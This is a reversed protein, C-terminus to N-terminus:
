RADHYVWLAMLSRSPCNRTSRGLGSGIRHRCAVHERCAGPRHEREKLWPRASTRGLRLRCRRQGSLDRRGLFPQHLADEDAHLLDPRGDRRRDDGVRLTAIPERPRAQRGPRVGERDARCARASNRLGTLRLPPEVHGYSSFVSGRGVPRPARTTMVSYSRGRAVIWGCSTMTSGSPMAQYQLKPSCVSPLSSGLVPRTVSCRTGSSFGPKGVPAKDTRKSRSLLRQSPMINWPPMAFNSRLFSVNEVQLRGGSTLRSMVWTLM